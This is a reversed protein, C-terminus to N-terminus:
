KLIDQIIDICKKCTVLDAESTHSLGETGIKLNKNCLSHTDYLGRVFHITGYPEYVAKKIEDKMYYEWLNASCDRSGYKSCVRKAKIDCPCDNGCNQPMNLKIMDEKRGVGKIQLDYRPPPSGDIVDLNFQIVEYVYNINYRDCYELILDITKNTIPIFSNKSVAILRLIAAYAINDIMFYPADVKIIGHSELNKTIDIKTIM